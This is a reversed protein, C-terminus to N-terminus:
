DSRQYLTCPIMERGPALRNGHFVNFNYSLKRVARYPAFSKRFSEYHSLLPVHRVIYDCSFIIDPKYFDIDEAIMDAYKWYPGLPNESDKQYLADRVVGELFWFKPFRSAHPKGGYYSILQIARVTGGMVLFKCDEGCGAVIQTIEEKMIDDRGPLFARPLPIILGSLILGLAFIRIANDRIRRRLLGDVVLLGAIYLFTLCPLLHYAYGKMMMIFILFSLASFWLFMRTYNVTNTVSSSLGMLILWACVVYIV